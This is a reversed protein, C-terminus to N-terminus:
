NWLLFIIQYSSWTRRRSIVWRGLTGPNSEAFKSQTNKNCDPYWNGELDKGQVRRKLTSNQQDCLRHRHCLTLLFWSSSNFSNWFPTCAHVWEPAVRALRAAVIHLSFGSMKCWFVWTKVRFRENEVQLRARTVLNRFSLKKMYLILIISIILYSIQRM